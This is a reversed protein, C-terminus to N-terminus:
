SIWATGAPAAIAQGSRAAGVARRVLERIHPTEETAVFADYTMEIIAPNVVPAAENAASACGNAQPAPQAAAAALFILTEFM